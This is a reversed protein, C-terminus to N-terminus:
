AASAVPLPCWPGAAVRDRRVRRFPTVPLAPAHNRVRATSRADESADFARLQARVRALLEGARVPKAVVDNAGADLGGVV